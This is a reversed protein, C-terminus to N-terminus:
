FHDCDLFPPSSSRLSFCFFVAIITDPADKCLVALGYTGQLRATATRTAELPTMGRGINVGILQAIVETDCESAFHVDSNLHFACNTTM